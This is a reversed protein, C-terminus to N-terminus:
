AGIRITNKRPSASGPLKSQMSLQGSEYAAAIALPIGAEALVVSARNEQLLAQMERELAVAMARRTEADAQAIRMDAEAQELQLRAGINMGVVIEEIDISVIAFATQADLGRRLVEAAIVMPNSLAERYNACAGIASVIGQGVRAIITTETAGGILQKLNTRVTVRVRVNLQIGDKAVGNVTSRKGQEIAPCDIVKPYVSTQVAELIDRGALDVAAATGWDLDIGARNAAILAKTVKYVNGGALYHAELDKTSHVPLGAQVAMVKCDVIVRPSVNRLSMMILSLMSINARSVYAQLWLAFYSRVVLAAVLVAVGGLVWPIMQM